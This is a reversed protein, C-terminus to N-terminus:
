ERLFRRAEDPDLTVLERRDEGDERVTNRQQMAVTASDVLVVRGRYSPLSAAVRKIDRFIAAAEPDLPRMGRLDALVRFPQGGSAELARAHARALSRMQPARVDHALRLTLVRRAPDYEIRWM